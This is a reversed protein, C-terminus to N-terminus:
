SNFKLFFFIFFYNSFVVPLLKKVSIRIHESIPNHKSNCQISEHLKSKVVNPYPFVLFLSVFVSHNILTPM